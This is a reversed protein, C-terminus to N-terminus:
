SKGFRYDKDNFEISPGVWDQRRAWEEGLILGIDRIENPTTKRPYMLELEERTVWKAAPPPFLEAITKAEPNPRLLFPDAYKALIRQKTASEREPSFRERWFEGFDIPEERQQRTGPRGRAM